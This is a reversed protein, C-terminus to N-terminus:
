ESIKQINMLFESEVNIRNDDYAQKFATATERKKTVFKKKAEAEYNGGDKVDEWKVEELVKTLSDLKRTSQNDAIGVEAKLSDLRMTKVASISDVKKVITDDTKGGSGLLYAAVGGVVAVGLVAFIAKKM